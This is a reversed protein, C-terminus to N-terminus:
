KNAKIINRKIFEEKLSCTLERAMPHASKDCRRYFFNNWADEFGCSILESKISLPLVDRAQQPTWPNGKFGTTYRRNAVRNELKDMLRFYAEEASDLAQIYDHVEVYNSKKNVWAKFNVSEGFPNEETSGVRYNIGDHEEKQYIQGVLFLLPLNM